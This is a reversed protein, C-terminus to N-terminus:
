ESITSASGAMLFTLLAWRQAWSGEIGLRRLEEAISSNEGGVGLYLSEMVLEGVDSGCLSSGFDPRESLAEFLRTTVVLQDSERRPDLTGLARTRNQVRVALEAFADNDKHQNIWGRMAEPTSNTSLERAAPAVLSSIYSKCTRLAQFHGSFADADLEQVRPESACGSMSIAVLLIFSHHRM